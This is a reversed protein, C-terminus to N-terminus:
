NNQTLNSLWLLGEKKLEAKYKKLELKAGIKNMAQFEYEVYDDEKVNKSEKVIFNGMLTEIITYNKLLSM